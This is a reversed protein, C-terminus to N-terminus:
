VHARGIESLHRVAPDKDKLGKVRYAFSDLDLPADAPQDFGFRVLPLCVRVHSLKGTSYDEWLKRGARDVEVLGPHSDSFFNRSAVVTNGNPLRLASSPSPIRLLWVPQGARDSEAMEEQSKDGVFGIRRVFWHGEPTVGLASSSCWRGPVEVKPVEVKRTYRGAGLNGEVIVRGDSAKWTVRGPRILYLGGEPSCRDDEPGHLLEQYDAVYKGKADVKYLCHGLRLLTKGDPYRYVPGGAAGM